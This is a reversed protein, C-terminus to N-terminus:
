ARRSHESSRFKWPNLLRSLVTVCQIAENTNALIRDFMSTFLRPILGEDGPAGMM